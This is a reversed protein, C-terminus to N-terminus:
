QPSQTDKTTSSAPDAGDKKGPDADAQQKQSHFFKFLKQVNPAAATGKTETSSTETTKTETQTAEAGSTAPVTGTAPQSELVPSAKSDTETTQQSAQQVTTNEQQTSEASKTDTASKDSSEPQTATAAAGSLDAQARTNVDVGMGDNAHVPSMGLLILGVAIPLYHKM